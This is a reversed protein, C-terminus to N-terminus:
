EVTDSTGIVLIARYLFAFYKIYRYKQTYIKTSTTSNTKCCKFPVMYFEPLSQWMFFKPTDFINLNIM